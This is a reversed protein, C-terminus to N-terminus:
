FATKTKETWSWRTNTTKGNYGGCCCGNCHRCVNSWYCEGGVLICRNIGFHFLGIRCNWGQLVMCFLGVAMCVLDPCLLFWYYLQGIISDSNSGSIRRNGM